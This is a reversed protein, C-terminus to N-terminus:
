ASKSLDQAPVVGESYTLHWVDLFLPRYEVYYRCISLLQVYYELKVYSYM